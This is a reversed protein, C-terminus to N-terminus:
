RRFGIAGSFTSAATSFATASCLSNSQFPEGAHGDSVGKRCSECLIPATRATGSIGHATGLRNSGQRQEKAKRQKCTLGEGGVESAADYADRVAVGDGHQMAIATAAPPYKKPRNLVCVDLAATLTLLEVSYMLELLLKSMSSKSNWFAPPRESLTAETVMGPVM